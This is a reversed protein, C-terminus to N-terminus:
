SNAIQWQDERASKENIIDELRALSLLTLFSVFMLLILGTIGGAPIAIFVLAMMMVFCAIVLLLLKILVDRLWRLKRTQNRLM